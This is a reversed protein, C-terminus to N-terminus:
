ADGKGRRAFSVLAYGLGAAVLGWIYSVPIAIMAWMRAEPNAPYVYTIFAVVAPVILAAGLIAAWARVRRWRLVGATVFSALLVAAIGAM